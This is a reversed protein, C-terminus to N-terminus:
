EMCAVEMCKRFILGQPLPAPLVGKVPLRGHQVVYVMLCKKKRTSKRRHEARGAEACNKRM